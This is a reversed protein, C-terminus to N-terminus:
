WSPGRHDRWLQAGLAGIYLGFASWVLSTLLYAPYSMMIM